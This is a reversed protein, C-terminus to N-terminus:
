LNIYKKICTDWIQISLVVNPDDPDVDKVDILGFEVGVTAELEQFDHGLIRRIINSKGVNVDGLIVVLIIKLKRNLYPRGKIMYKKQKNDSNTVTELTSTKSRSTLENSDKVTQGRNSNM